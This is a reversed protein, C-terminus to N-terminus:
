KNRNKIKIIIKKKIHLYRCPEGLLGTLAIGSDNRKKKGEKSNIQQNPKHAASHKVASKAVGIYSIFIHQLYLCQVNM